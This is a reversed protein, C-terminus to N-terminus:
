HHAEETCLGRIGIKSQITHIAEIHDGIILQSKAYNSRLSQKRSNLHIVDTGDVQEIKLGKLVALAQAKPPIALNEYGILQAASKKLAHPITTLSSFQLHPHLLFHNLFAKAMSVPDIMKSHTFVPNLDNLAIDIGNQCAQIFPRLQEVPIVLDGDLFLLVDGNAAQAGIGRGVDDGLKETFCICQVGQKICKLLTQDTSGNVVAIIEKPELKKVERLVGHITEEGNQVTLIVSISPSEREVEQRIESSGEWHLLDRRRGLDTFGGRIGRKHILMSIAEAHDGVIVENAKEGTDKERKRNLFSIDVELSRKIRLGQDIAIALAKPPVILNEVGIVELARRSLAYPITTLSSGALDSRNLIYNLLRQAQCSSDIFRSTHSGSYANLVVDHGKWVELCYQKLVRASIIVDAHIFLILDGTAHAAGIARGEAHGVSSPIQFLQTGEQRAIKETRGKSGNCVVIVEINTYIKQVERIVARITESDNQALIIM